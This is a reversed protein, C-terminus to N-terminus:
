RTKIDSILINAQCQFKDNSIVLRYATIRIRWACGRDEYKQSYHIHFDHQAQVTM